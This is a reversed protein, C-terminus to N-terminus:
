VYISACYALDQPVCPTCWRTIEPHKQDLPTDSALTCIPSMGNIQNTPQQTLEVLITM